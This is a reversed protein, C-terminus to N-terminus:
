IACFVSNRRVKHEKCIRNAAGCLRLADNAVGRLFRHPTQTKVGRSFDSIKGAPVGNTGAAKGWLTDESQQPVKRPGRQTEAFSFHLVNAGSRTKDSQELVIANSESKQEAPHAAGAAQEKKLSSRTKHQQVM